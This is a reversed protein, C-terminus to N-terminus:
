ERQNVLAQCKWEVYEYQEASSALARAAGAARVRARREATAM